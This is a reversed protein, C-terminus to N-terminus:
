RARMRGGDHHSRFRTCRGRVTDRAACGVTTADVLALVSRGRTDHWADGEPALMAPLDARADPTTGGLWRMCGSATGAPSITGIKQPIMLGFAM